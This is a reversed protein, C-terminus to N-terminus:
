HVPESVCEQKSIRRGGMFRTRLRRENEARFASHKMRSALSMFRDELAMMEPDNMGHLSRSIIAESESILDDLHSTDDPDCYICDDLLLNVDSALSQITSNRFALCYAPRGQDYARWQSLDDRLRSFCTVFAATRTTLKAAEVFDWTRQSKSRSIFDPNKEAAKHLLESAFNYENSDNLYHIETAWISKSEIIGLLGEMTTYHYLTFDPEREQAPLPSESPELSEVSKTTDEQSREENM